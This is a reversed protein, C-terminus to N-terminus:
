GVRRERAVAPGDTEHCSAGAIVPSGCHAFGDADALMAAGLFHFQHVDLDALGPGALDADAVLRDAQVEDIDVLAGPRYWSGIGSDSPM